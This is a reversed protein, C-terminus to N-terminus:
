EDLQKWWPPEGPPQEAQRAARRAAAREERAQEKRDAMWSMGNWQAVHLFLGLVCGAALGLGAEWGASVYGLVGGVVAWGVIWWRGADQFTMVVWRGLGILLRM